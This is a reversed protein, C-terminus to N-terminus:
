YIYHCPSIISQYRYDTTFNSSLIPYITLNLSSIIHIKATFLATTTATYNKYRFNNYKEHVRLRDSKKLRIQLWLINIEVNVCIRLLAFFALAFFTIM